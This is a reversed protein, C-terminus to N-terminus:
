KGRNIHTKNVVGSSLMLEDSTMKVMFHDKFNTYQDHAEFEYYGTNNYKLKEVTNMDTDMDIDTGIDVDMNADYLSLAKEYAFKLAKEESAYIHLDVYFNNILAGTMNM